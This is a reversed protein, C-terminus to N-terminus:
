NGNENGGIINGYQDLLQIREKLGQKEKFEIVNM